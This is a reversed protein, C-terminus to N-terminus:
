FRLRETGMVIHDAKIINKELGLETNPIGLAMGIFQTLHLVPLQFRKGMMSLSEPQYADLSAHCFPCVVVLADAGQMKADILVKAGMKMSPRENVAVSHFGCCDKKSDFEVVNAGCVNIIKDISRPNHSSEFGLIKSPRLIHCGYYPAIEANVRTVVRKEIEAIDNVLIWLIHKVDAEGKYALGEKKLNGNVRDRLVDDSDLKRKAKLMNVLCTSCTVLIDLGKKEA